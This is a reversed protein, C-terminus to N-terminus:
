RFLPREAHVAIRRLWEGDVPGVSITSCGERCQDCLMDEQTVPRTCPEKTLGGRSPKDCWCTEVKM